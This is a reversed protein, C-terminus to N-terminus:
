AMWFLFESVLSSCVWYREDFGWDQTSHPYFKCQLLQDINEVSVRDESGTLGQLKDVLDKLAETPTSKDWIVAVLQGASIGFEAMAATNM